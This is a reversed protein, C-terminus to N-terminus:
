SEREREFVARGEKEWAKGNSVKFNIGVKRVVQEFTLKRNEFCLDNMQGIIEVQETTLKPKTKTVSCEKWPM